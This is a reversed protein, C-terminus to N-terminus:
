LFTWTVLIKVFRTWGASSTIITLKRSHPLGRLTNAKALYSASLGIIKSMFMLRKKPWM